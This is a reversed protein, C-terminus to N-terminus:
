FFDLFIIHCYTYHLPYDFFANTVLNGEVNYVKLVRFLYLVFQFADVSFDILSYYIQNKLFKEM